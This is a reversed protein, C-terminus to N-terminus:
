LNEEIYKAITAFDKGEAGDIGDNMNALVRMDVDDIDFKTLLKHSLYHIEGAFRGDGEGKKKEYIGAIKCLVGLCCYNNKELSHLVGHGQEYKGSRLAKLWKVKIRKKM